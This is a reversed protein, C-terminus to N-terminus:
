LGVFYVQHQINNATGGLHARMYAKDILRIAWLVNYM